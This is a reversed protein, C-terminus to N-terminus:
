AKIITFNEGCSFDVYRAGGVEPVKHPENVITGSFKSPFSSSRVM